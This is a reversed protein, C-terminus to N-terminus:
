NRLSSLGWSLSAARSPQLMLMERSYFRAYSPPDFVDLRLVHVVPELRRPLLACVPFESSPSKRGAPSHAIACSPREEEGQLTLCAETPSPENQTRYQSVMLRINTPSRAARAASLRLACGCRAGRNSAADSSTERWVM